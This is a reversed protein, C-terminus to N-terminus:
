QGSEYLKPIANVTKIVPAYDLGIADLYWKINPFRPANEAKVLALAAERDM